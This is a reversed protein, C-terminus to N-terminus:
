DIERKEKLRPNVWDIRSIGEEDKMRLIPVDKSLALLAAEAGEKAKKKAEQEMNPIKRRKEQCSKITRGLKRAIEEWPVGTACWTSLNDM